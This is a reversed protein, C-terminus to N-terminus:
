QLAKQAMVFICKEKLQQYSLGMSNLGLENAKAVIGADTFMWQKENQNNPIAKLTTLWSSDFGAWGKECCIRIVEPFPMKAKEAERILGKLATETLPLKKAKRIKLYDNWLSVDVGEPPAIDKNNTRPEQNKTKTQMPTDIPPSDSGKDDRKGWRKEAGLRGGAQMAHYKAIEEDARKNRWVNNEKDLEFFELLIYHVIEVTTKCRKAIWEAEQSFPKETLYYLDIMRRYALDEDDTLHHTHSIYDGIHFPYFNM